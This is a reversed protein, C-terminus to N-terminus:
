SIYVVYLLMRLRWMWWTPLLPPSLLPVHIYVHVGSLKQLLNEFSPPMLHGSAKLNPNPYEAECLLFLLSSTPIGPPHEDVAFLGGWGPTPRRRRGELRESDGLTLRVFALPKLRSSFIRRVAPGARRSRVRARAKKTYILMKMFNLFLM